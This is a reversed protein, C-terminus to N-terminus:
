SIYEEMGRGLTICTHIHTITIFTPFQLYITFLRRYCIDVLLAPLLMYVNSSLMNTIQTLQTMQLSKMGQYSFVEIFHGENRGMHHESHERTSSCLGKNSVSVSVPVSLNVLAGQPLGCESEHLLCTPLLLCFLCLSFSTYFEFRRKSKTELFLAKWKNEKNCCWSMVPSEQKDSIHEFPCMECAYCGLHHCLRSFGPFVVGLTSSCISSSRFLLNCLWWVVALLVVPCPSVHWTGLFRWEGLNQRGGM